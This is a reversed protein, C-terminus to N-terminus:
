TRRQEPMASRGALLTVADHNGNDAWAFKSSLGVRKAEKVVCLHATMVANFPTAKDRELYLHCGSVIKTAKQKYAKGDNYVSLYKSRERQGLSTESVMDWWFDSRYWDTLQHQQSLEPM